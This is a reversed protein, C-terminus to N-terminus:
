STKEDATPEAKETEGEASATEEPEEIATDDHDLVEEDVQPPLEPSAEGSEAEPTTEPDASPKQEPEVSSVLYTAGIWAVIQHLAALGVFTGALWPRESGALLALLALVGVGIHVTPREVFQKWETRPLRKAEEATLAYCGREDTSKGLLGDLKEREWVGTLDAVSDWHPNGSRIDSWCFFSSTLAILVSIVVLVAVVSIIWFM